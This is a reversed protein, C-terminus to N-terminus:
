LKHYMYYWKGHYYNNQVKVDSREL